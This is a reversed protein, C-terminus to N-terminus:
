SCNLNTNPHLPPLLHSIFPCEPSHPIFPLPHPTTAHLVSARPVNMHRVQPAVLIGQLPGVSQGLEAILTASRGHADHTLHKTAVVEEIRAAPEVLAAVALEPTGM